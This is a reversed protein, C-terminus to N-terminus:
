AEETMWSAALTWTQLKSLRYLWNVNMNPAVLGNEAQGIYQAGIAAGLNPQRPFTRWPLAPPLQGTNFCALYAEALARYLIGLGVKTGDGVNLNAPLHGQAATQELLQGALEALAPGSVQGWREPMIIPDEMPGLAQIRQVSDPLKGSSQAAARIATAWALLVEAPSWRSAVVVEGSAEVRQAAAALEVRSMQGPVQGYKATM